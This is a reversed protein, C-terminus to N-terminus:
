LRAEYIAILCNIETSKWADNEIHKHIYGVRNRSIEIKHHPSQKVWWERIVERTDASDITWVDTKIPRGLPNYWLKQHAFRTKIGCQEAFYKSVEAIYQNNM